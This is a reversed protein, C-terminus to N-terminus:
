VRQMYETSQHHVCLAASLLYERKRERQQQEREATVQSHIGTAALEEVYQTHKCRHVMREDRVDM